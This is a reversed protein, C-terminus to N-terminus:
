FSNCSMSVVMSYSQSHQVILFSFMWSFSFSIITQRSHFHQSPHAQFIVLYDSQCFTLGNALLYSAEIPSLYLTEDSFPKSM